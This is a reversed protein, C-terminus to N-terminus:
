AAAAAPVDDVADFEVAVRQAVADHGMVRVVHARRMRDSHVLATSDDTDVVLEITEGPMLHAPDALELLAGGASLNATCGGRYRRASPQYLKVPCQRDFRPYRRREFSTEMASSANPAM